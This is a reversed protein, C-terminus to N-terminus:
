DFMELTKIPPLGSLKLSTGIRREDKREIEHRLVHDLFHVPSLEDRSAEEVLESLCAAADGRQTAILIPEARGKSKPPM